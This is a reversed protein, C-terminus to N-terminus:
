QNKPTSPQPTAETPASAVPTEKKEGEAKNPQDQVSEKKPDTEASTAKEEGSKQKEQQSPSSSTETQKESVKAVDSNEESKESDGNQPSETEFKVPVGDGIKSQGISVVLDDENLGRIIEVNEGEELGTTVPVQYAKGDIVKYVYEDDGKLEISNRPVVLARDKSGVVVDVRAFLGPKYLGKKNSMLARVGISHGTDDVTSDIAEIIGVNKKDDFGDVDVKIKQGVSIYRLYNGPIKFDVKIPDIDVITLIDTQENIPAGISLTHLGVIGDFPAYIVTRELRTKASLLDAEAIKLEAVTKDRTKASAFNSSALKDARNFEVQALSLKAEAQKLEAQFTRDDVEFLVDGEKVFEGGRVHVKSILGHVEPRIKVSQQAMLTGVATVRRTLSSVRVKEVEVAVGDFERKRPGSSPDSMWWWLISVTFAALLILISLPARKLITM